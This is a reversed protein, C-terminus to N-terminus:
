FSLHWATGPVSRTVFGVARRDARGFTGNAVPTIPDHWAGEEVDLWLRRQSLPEAVQTADVPDIAELDEWAL